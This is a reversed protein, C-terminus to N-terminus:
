PAASLDLPHEATGFKVLTNPQDVSVIYPGYVVTSTSKDPLYLTISRIGPPIKDFRFAGSDGSGIVISRSIVSSSDPDPYHIEVELSGSWPNGSKLIVGHVSYQIRNFPITLTIDANLGTGGSARDAGYSTLTIPDASPDYVYSTGWADKSYDVGAVGQDGLYPGNWGVGIRAEDKLGWPDYGDPISWLATLGQTVTPLAGMDGIYGFHSKSGPSNMEGILANRIRRMQNVTSDFKAQDLTDGVPLLSFTALIGLLGLVMLLEILTFGREDRMSPIM